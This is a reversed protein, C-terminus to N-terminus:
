FYPLLLDLLVLQEPKVLHVPHVLLARLGTEALLVM